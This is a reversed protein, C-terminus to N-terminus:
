KREPQKGMLRKITRYAQTVVPAFIMVLACAAMVMLVTNGADTHDMILGPGHIGHRGM